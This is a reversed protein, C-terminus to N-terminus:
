RFPSIRVYWNGDSFSGLQVMIAMCSPWGGTKSYRLPSNFFALVLGFNGCWRKDKLRCISSRSCAILDLWPRRGLTWHCRYTARNTSAVIADSVRTLTDLRKRYTLLWLLYVPQSLFGLYICGFPSSCILYDNHWAHSPGVLVIRQVGKPIPVYKYILPFGLLVEHGLVKRGKCDEMWPTKNILLYPASSHDIRWSWDMSEKSLQQLRVKGGVEVFSM